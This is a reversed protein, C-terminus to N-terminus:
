SAAGAECLLDLMARDNGVEVVSRINWVKGRASVRDAETLARSDSSARIRITATKSAEVRGADVREKGPTERVDAWVTMHDAWGTVTNGYGDDGSTQRQITVRERLRGANM